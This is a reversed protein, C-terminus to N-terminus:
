RLYLPFNGTPTRASVIAVFLACIFPFSARFSPVSSTSKLRRFTSSDTGSSQDFNHMRCLKMEVLSQNVALGAALAIM